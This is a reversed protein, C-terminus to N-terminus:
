PTYVHTRTEILLSKLRQLRQFDVGAQQELDVLEYYQNADYSKRVHVYFPNIHRRYFCSDRLAETEFQM